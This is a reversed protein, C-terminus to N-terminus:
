YPNTQLEENEKQILETLQESIKELSKMLESKEHLDMKAFLKEYKPRMLHFTRGKETLEVILARKDQKSHYRRIYGNSELKQLLEGLSQPRIDLMYGLQKQPIGNMSQLTSLIRGQGQRPDLGGFNKGYWTMNYRQMLHYTDLFTEILVEIDEM